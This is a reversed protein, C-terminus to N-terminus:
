VIRMLWDVPRTVFDILYFLLNRFFNVPYNLVGLLILALVGLIFYQEYAVIRAYIEHPLFPMLAHWGDLPPIPLLNFVALSLNIMTMFYLIELISSFLAANVSYFATFIKYLTLTLVALLINSVPGALSTVVIGKVRNTFRFSNIPVPRAFGFGFFLIMFAGIPSIHYMPNLTLRNNRIATDDGMKAAAWAHAYEHVPIATLLVIIRSLLVYFSMNNFFRFINM